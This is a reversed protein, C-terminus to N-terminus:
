SSSRRTSGVAIAVPLAALVIAPVVIAVVVVELLSVLAVMSSTCNMDSLTRSAVDGDKLLGWGSKPPGLWGGLSQSAGGEHRVGIAGVPPTLSMISLTQM